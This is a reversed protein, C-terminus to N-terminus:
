TLVIKSNEMWDRIPNRKDYLSLEILKSFPDENQEYTRTQRLRIHLNYNVYVLKHLKKIVCRTACRPTSLLLLIGIVSV